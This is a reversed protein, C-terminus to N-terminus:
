ERQRSTSGCQKEKPEERDRPREPDRRVTAVAQAAIGEGRGTFGMGETTKGKLSLRGAEIGMADALSRCMEDIHPGIRPEEAIMVADVNEVEWGAQRVMNSVRCLLAISSIGQYQPDTDPFHRGIDGAGIAGLLADCVAHCVVDADSHGLLGRSERLKVGALVLPRDEAFRHADYGIGTRTTAHQWVEQARLDMMREGQVLDEPWTIKVNGRDSPVVRVRHGLREVLFADDTGEVGAAAAAEHAEILLKRRFAQPTQVLWLLSRDFTKAVELEPGVEKVTDSAPVAAVAAGYTAAAELCRVVLASKVFPRAADHVVILDCARSVEALGARVSEQRKLGGPVVRESQRGGPQLLERRAREVDEPAVVLIIEDLERCARFAELSYSVLPRGGLM